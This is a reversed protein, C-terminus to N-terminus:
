CGYGGADSVQCGFVCVQMLCKIGMCVPMLCGVHVYVCTDFVQCGDFM